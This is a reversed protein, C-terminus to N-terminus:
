LLTSKKGPIKNLYTIMVIIAWIVAIAITIINVIVVNTSPIAYRCESSTTMVCSQFNKIVYPFLWILWGCVWINIWRNMRNPKNRRYSLILEIFYAMIVIPLLTAMLSYFIQLILLSM